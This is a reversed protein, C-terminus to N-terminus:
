AWFFRWEQANVGEWIGAQGRWSTALLGEPTHRGSVERLERDIVGIWGELGWLVSDVTAEPLM